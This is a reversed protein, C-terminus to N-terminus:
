LGSKPLPLLLGPQAIGLTLILRYGVNVGVQIERVVSMGRFPFYGDCLAVESRGLVVTFWVRDAIELGAVGQLKKELDTNLQYFAM